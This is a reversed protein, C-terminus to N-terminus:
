NCTRHVNGNKERRNFTNFNKEEITNKTIFYHVCKKSFSERTFLIEESSPFNAHIVHDAKLNSLRPFIDDSIILTFIEGRNFKEIRQEIDTRELHHHISKVKIKEEKLKMEVGIVPGYFPVFIITQENNETISAVKETLIKYKNQHFGAFFSINSKIKAREFGSTEGSLDYYFFEKENRLYVKQEADTLSVFTTSFDM